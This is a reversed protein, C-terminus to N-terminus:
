RGAALGSIGDVRGYGGLEWRTSNRWGGVIESIDPDDVGNVSVARREAAEDVWAAEDWDVVVGPRVHRVFLAARDAGHSHRALMARSM